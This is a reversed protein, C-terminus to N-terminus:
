RTKLVEDILGYKVATDADMFNERLGSKKKKLIDDNGIKDTNKKKM